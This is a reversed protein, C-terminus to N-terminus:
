LNDFIYLTLLLSVLVVDHQSQVATQEHQRRGTTKIALASYMGCRAIAHRNNLKSYTFTQQTNLHDLIHLELQVIEIFSFCFHSIYLYKIQM